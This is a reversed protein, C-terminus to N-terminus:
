TTVYMVLRMRVIEVYVKTTIITTSQDFNEKYTEIVYQLLFCSKLGVFIGDSIMTIRPKISISASTHLDTTKGIYYIGENRQRVLHRVAL